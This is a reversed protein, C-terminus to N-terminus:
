EHINILPELDVKYKVKTQLTRWKERWEKKEIPRSFPTLTRAGIDLPDTQWEQNKQLFAKTQAELHSKIESTIAALDDLDNLNKKGQYEDIRGKLEVKLNMETLDQNFTVDVNTRVHGLVVSLKPIPLYKLYYDNAILQYIEDDSDTVVSLLKDNQFIATGKYNFNGNEAKFVPLIPDSYPSYLKQMFQHLNVISLQGQRKKEYHKLMRYLFYDLNKQSKIEEKIYEKFDGQIIVLYLRQSIDPDTFITNIIPRLGKKALEENVLMIRLQGVKLERYYRLNFGKESQKLLDVQMTLIRKKEQVLPPVVTTAELKGEAAGDLSWFIVPAIEEIENNEVYPSCGTILNVCCIITMGLSKKFYAM